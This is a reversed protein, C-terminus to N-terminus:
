QRPTQHLNIAKEVEELQFLRYLKQQIPSCESILWRAQGDSYICLIQKLDSLREKLVLPSKVLKAQVAQYQMWSLLLFSMICCFIYARIKSDTWHRIPRISILEPCNLTKFGNEIRGREKYQKVIWGSEADIRSTFILNKGMRLRKEAMAEENIEFSLGEISEIVRVFKKYHSDELIRRIGSNMEKTPNVYSDLKRQLQILLKDISSTLSHEQKRALKPDYTMVLACNRGMVKQTTRMLKIEGMSELYHDVPVALLDRHQSPVLSGVWHITGFLADFNTKSNNGKDLLLVVENVEKYAGVISQLLEKVVGAFVHADQRNGAYVRHHIPLGTAQDTALALGVQRLHHKSAKNHGNKALLSGTAPELYTHFNTTDYIM